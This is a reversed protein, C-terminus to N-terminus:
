KTNLHPFDTADWEPFLELADMRICLKGLLTNPDDVISVLEKQMERKIRENKNILSIYGKSFLGKLEWATELKTINAVGDIKFEEERQIQYITRKREEASPIIAPHPHGSDISLNEQIQERHYCWSCDGGKRTNDDSYNISVMWPELKRKCVACEIKGEPIPTGECQFEALDFDAVSEGGIDIWFSEEGCYGWQSILEEIENYYNRNYKIEGKADAVPTWDEVDEGARSFRPM